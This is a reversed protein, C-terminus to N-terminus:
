ILIAPSTNLSSTARLLLLERDEVPFGELADPALRGPVGRFEVPVELADYGPPVQAEQVALLHIEDETHRGQQVQIPVQLPFPGALPVERHVLIGRARTAARSWTRWTERHFGM